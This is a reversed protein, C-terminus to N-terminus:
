GKIAGLIRPAEVTAVEIIIATGETLSIDKADLVAEGATKAIAVVEIVVNCVSHIVSKLSDIGRAM